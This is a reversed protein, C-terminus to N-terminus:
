ERSSSIETTKKKKQRRINFGAFCAWRELATLSATQRHGGSCQFSFFLDRLKQEKLLESHIRSNHHQIESHTNNNAYNITVAQVIKGQAGDNM